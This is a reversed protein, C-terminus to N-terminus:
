PAQLGDRVRQTLWPPQVLLSRADELRDALTSATRKLVAYGVSPNREIVDDLGRRPLRVVDCQSECRVSATYRFPPRCASWGILMGPTDSRGVFLEDVGEFRLLFQVSGSRLIFIFEAEDHQRVVFDGAGLMREEAQAALEKLPDVPLGQFFALTTLTELSVM